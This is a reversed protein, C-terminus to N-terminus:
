TGSGQAKRPLVGAIRWGAPEKVLVWEFAESEGGKAFVRGALVAQAGDDRAPAFEVRVSRLLIPYGGAIMAAFRAPAVRTRFKEAALAYAKNWDGTRLAALQAEVVASIKEREPARSIKLPVGEEAARVAVVAAFVLALALRAASM